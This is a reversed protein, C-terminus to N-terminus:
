RAGGATTTTMDPRPITGGASTRGSSTRSTPSGAGTSKPHYGLRWGFLQEAVLLLVLLLLVFDHIERGTETAVAVDQDGHERVRVRGGLSKRLEDTATLSLDSEASPANFSYQRTEDAGDLRKLGLRYLGPEDTSRVVERYRAAAGDPENNAPEHNTPESPATESGTTGQGSPPSAAGAQEVTATIREVAGNPLTLELQPSYVAADLVVPLEEGVVRQDFRQKPRAIHRALELSLPVFSPNQPWNTWPAGCSSLCTVIVGQGLRHELFLPAGNRLRAIVQVGPTATWGNAPAFYRQIAVTDVFPNEDGQFIRFAPHVGFAIDAAPNTDDRSLDAVAALPLAFLGTGDAKYLSKNVFGPRVQDGSFWVLGGGGRVYQELVRVVDAPLDPTNVLFLSQYRDLPQRRLVEITEVTPAFGTLGPAPALADRLSEIESAGTQGSVLLVAHSEPITFALYRRNDSDLSDPPLEVQVAHPGTTPFVVDFERQTTQGPELSEIVVATPLKRGDVLVNLRIGQAVKKGFNKVAISLRLPVNAAAIDLSGELRTLALNPHEEPVSRLCNVEIKAATLEKIALVAPGAAEWDSSRFDSIVHALQTGGPTSELLRRAAVLAAEFPVQRHTADLSKLRADLEGLFTRDLARATFLPVGPKSALLVSVVQTGPRRAGLEAINRVVTKAEEFATTGGWRDRMSGSDDVVVVHHTKRGQFLSLQDPDLVPRAVLAVIAVIVLIRLLLLLLQELLLRRRNKQQSKLLFEMAAWKVRRYRLRHILHIVIPAAVLALGPLVVAPNLFLGSLWSLM